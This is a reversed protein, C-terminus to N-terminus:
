DSGCREPPYLGPGLLDKFFDRDNLTVLGFRHTERYSPAAFRQTAEGVAPVLLYGAEPAMLTSGAVWRLSDRYVHMDALADTIGALGVRYKADLLIWRVLQQGQRYTLVFDPRRETSITRTM